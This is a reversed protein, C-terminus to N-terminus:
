LINVFGDLATKYKGLPGPNIQIREGQLTRPGAKLRSMPTGTFAAVISAGHYDPIEVFSDSPKSRPDFFINRHGAHIRDVTEKITKSVAAFAKSEKGDFITVRNSIFSFLKPLDIGEEKARKSFSLRAYTAVHPDGIGYLLAIVNQIARRSSDDATFPVIVKDAAVLALQTYIAFSPNCDLFFVAERDGSEEICVALLDKIWSLVHRWADIPVALQSTQRIAEALVELLYDGCVLRLNDPINPNFESPTVVYELANDIMKFPSNLRSEIYGAVTARPNRKILGNIASPSNDHGGLLTESVNGQPCLDIVYVDSDPFLRAYESSAVFCLFTKGVGGKNNWFAYSTM